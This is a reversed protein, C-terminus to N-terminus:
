KQAIISEQGIIQSHRNQVANQIVCLTTYRKDETVLLYILELKNFINM